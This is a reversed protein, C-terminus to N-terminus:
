AAPKKLVVKNIVIRKTLGKALCFKDVDRILGVFMKEHPDYDDVLMTGGPELFEWYMELDRLCDGEEHCGDIYILQAKQIGLERIYRGASISPMPLPVIVDELKRGLVNSLVTYYFCPRGFQIKLKVRHEPMSWLIQEALWTDVCLIASGTLGLRKIAGGMTIASGGLFSGVEIILRPKIEAVLEDFIPQGPGFAFYDPPWYASPYDAYPNIGLHIKQILEEYATM